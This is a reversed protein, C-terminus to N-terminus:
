WLMMGAMSRDRFHYFGRSFNLRRAMYESESGYWIVVLCVAFLSCMVKRM